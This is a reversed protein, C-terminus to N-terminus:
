READAPLAREFYDAMSGMQEVIDKETEVAVGMIRDQGRLCKRCTVRRWDGTFDSTEGVWTGCAAQEVEDNDHSPNYHTAM